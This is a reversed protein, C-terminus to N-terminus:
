LVPRIYEDEIGHNSTPYFLANWGRREGRKVTLIDGIPTLCDKFNDLWAIDHFLANLTIGDNTIRNIVEISYSKRAAVSSDFAEHLVISNVLTEKDGADLTKIDKNILWFNIEKSQDPLGIQKKELILLTGIVDANQFWRKCNSILVSQIHYYYTLAEFFKKGIETGLWSNSLIIGLKGHEDLLEYLKFPFYNYLDTKGLTFEIGTDEKIKRRYEHIYDKEDAAIKNYEVFPLNSMIAGFHPIVREMNSGDIPSKIEIKLGPHVAFVDAQFMNLPINLAHINTVAINAIQLPYAYKDAMWTTRFAQEPNHLRETKNQIIAKAITGTGACLDACDSTWDVVTMQCLLDALYFPTAYQGRIERKAAHVTKELIDQLVTQDILDIHNMILFQNYDVLDIWTDEPIMENYELRKFVSYFDGQEIIRDMIINGDEPTTTNDIERIMYACNHYKKVTNAFMIRNTWNLLISKAYAAYMNREDKDYEEHFANWWVKLRSEISMNKGAAVVINEAVLDKNRQIVETMLGDSITSVISSVSIGGHLLYENVALVMDKIIPLWEAKYVAVDERSK